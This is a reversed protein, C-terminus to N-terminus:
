HSCLKLGRRSADLEIPLTLVSFVVMLSFLLIGLWMLGTISVDPELNWLGKNM